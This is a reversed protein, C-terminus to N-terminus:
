GDCKRRTTGSSGVHGDRGVVDSARKEAGGDPVGEAHGDLPEAVLVHAGVIFADFLVAVVVLPAVEVGPLPRVVGLHRKGEDAGQGRM